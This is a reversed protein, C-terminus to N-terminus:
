TGSILGGIKAVADGLTAISPLVKVLGDWIQLLVSKDAKPKQLESVFQNLLTGAAVDGSKAVENSVSLLAQATEDGFTKRTANFANEVLSHNIIQSNKINEFKDGVILEKIVISSHVSTDKKPNFLSEHYEWKFGKDTLEVTKVASYHHRWHLLDRESLFRVVSELEDDSLGLKKAFLRADWFYINRGGLARILIETNNERDAEAILKLYHKSVEQINEM